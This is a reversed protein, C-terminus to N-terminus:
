KTQEAVRVVADPGTLDLESAWQDIVPWLRHAYDVVTSRGEEQMTGVAGALNLATIAQSRDVHRDPLWSVVWQGYPEGETAPIAWHRTQEDTIREDTIQLSM